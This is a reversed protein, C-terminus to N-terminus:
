DIAIAQPGTSGTWSPAAATPGSDPPLEQRYDAYLKDRWQFFPQFESADALGPVGLGKLTEPMPIYNGTPFKLYMTMAAVTFDALSPAAGVLYPQRALVTCLGTLARKLEETAAAIAGPGFGVGQGLASFVDGPLAGVLSKLVGPTQAPLLATRLTQNTSFASLMVKRANLGVVEDAWQELMWCQALAGADLPLIPREPYTTELFNAIATSDAVVRDGSKLVPVQRQGSLRMVELQGIGPLVEKKEYALGKFDLIFRIKEAYSSLEFQYLELM